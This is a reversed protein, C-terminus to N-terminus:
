LYTSGTFTHKLTISSRVDRWIMALAEVAERVKKKEDDTPSIISLYSFAADLLGLTQEFNDVKKDIMEHDCKYDKKQLLKERVEDSIEMANRVIRRFSVGNFDRGHYAARPAQFNELVEEIEAM